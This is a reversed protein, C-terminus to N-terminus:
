DQRLRALESLLGWSKLKQPGLHTQLVGRLAGRLEALQEPPPLRDEALALLAAGSTSGADHARDRVPGIEADLRYRGAPDLRVGEGEQDWPLGYGLLDLLDREFRRLTWALTDGGALSQRLEAYRDFLAPAPDQRPLLRLLLENVYFAAMLAEGQLMPAADMAEAQLLRALEGRPLFDVRLFQLPQLAARLLHRKAGQVGRAVVAVRGHDPTLLEVILSTERWPRAHLVFAPQAEVRM